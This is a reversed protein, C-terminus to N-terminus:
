ALYVKLPMMPSNTQFNVLVNNLKKATKEFYGLKTSVLPDNMQSLLLQYSKNDEPRGRGPQKSKPLRKWFDLVEIMKSCVSLSKKAVVDNEVWRHSCFRLPFGSKSASTIREYDARCSTSEYFLKIMSNLLKKINRNSEKEGHKFSNHVTYLGCTDIDIM